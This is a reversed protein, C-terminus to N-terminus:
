KWFLQVLLLCVALCLSVFTKTNIGEGCFVYTLMSFIIIGSIFSLFRGPWFLGEFGSVAMRTAEMFLYTIPLGCLILLWKYKTAWPWIIPGNVQIWVIAQGILYLILSYFILRYNM